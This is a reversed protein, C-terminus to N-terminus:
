FVIVNKQQWTKEGVEVSKKAPRPKQFFIIYIYITLM